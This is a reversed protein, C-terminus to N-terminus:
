CCYKLRRLLPTPPKKGQASGPIRSLLSIPHQRGQANGLLRSLQSIPHQRGQANGLTSIVYGKLSNIGSFM